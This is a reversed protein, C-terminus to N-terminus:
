TLFLIFLVFNNKCMAFQRPLLKDKKAVTPSPISRSVQWERNVKSVALSGVANCFKEMSTFHTMVFLCVSWYNAEHCSLSM